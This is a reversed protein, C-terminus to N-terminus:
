SRITAAAYWLLLDVKGLPWDAMHLCSESAGVCLDNATYFGFNKALSVLHVDPKVLQVAGLNRALHMSLAPGMFAINQIALPDRADLYRKRFPM